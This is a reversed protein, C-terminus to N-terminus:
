NTRLLGNRQNDLHISAECMIKSTTHVLFLLHYEDTVALPSRARVLAHLVTARELDLWRQLATERERPGGLTVDAPGWLSYELVSKVQSLTEAKEKMLLEKVLPLKNTLHLEQLALLACQCLSAMKEECEESSDVNLGQLLYLRYCANKDERCLVVNSLNKPAEEIGRAQLNKMANVFQLLVFCCDKTTGEDKTDKTMVSFSHITNVQLRPLVSITAEVNKRGNCERKKALEQPVSDMFEVIPALYFEKRSVHTTPDFTICITLNQDNWIASYFIRRGVLVSSASDLTFDSLRLNANKLGRLGLSIPSVLNLQDLFQALADHNAVVVAGYNDELSRHVISRGRRQRLRNLRSEEDKGKWDQDEEPGEDGTYFSYPAYVESETESSCYPLSTSRTFTPQHYKFEVNSELISSDSKRKGNAHNGNGHRLELSSDCEPSSSLCEYVQSESSSPSNSTPSNSDLPEYDQNENQKHVTRKKLPPQSITQDRMSATRQPKSPALASRIEGLNAYISDSTSSPNSAPQWSKPPLKEGRPPPKTDTRPPPPRAPKNAPDLRSWDELSQNRPPPPPKGPRTTVQQVGSTMQSNFALSGDNRSDPVDESVRSHGENGLVQVAAGDLELPHIIELRPKPQPTSPIENMRSSTSGCTMDVDKRSGMRLFKKLSFRSRSKKKEETREPNALSDQSLSINRRPAPEPAKVSPDPAECVAKRFKPSCSSARERKEKERVVPSDSKMVTTPNRAFLSAQADDAPSAPPKPAMRRKNPSRIMEAPLDSNELDDEDIEVDEEPQQTKFISISPPKPRPPSGLGFTRTGNETPKPSEETKSPSEVQANQCSQVQPPKYTINQSQENNKSESMTSYSYNCNRTASLDKVENSNAQSSVQSVQNQLAPNQIPVSFSSLPSNKAPILATINNSFTSYTITSTSSTSNKPSFTSPKQPVLPKIKSEGHLFSARPEAITLMCKPEVERICGNTKVETPPPSKPLAPPESVDEDAKGDPEGASERSEVFNFKKGVDGEIRREVLLSSEKTKEEPAPVTIKNVDKGKVLISRDEVAEKKFPTLTLEIGSNYTGNTRNETNMIDTRKTIKTVAYEGKNNYSNQVCIRPKENEPKKIAPTRAISIRKESKSDTKKEISEHSEVGVNEENQIVSVLNASTILPMDVIKELSPSENQRKECIQIQDESIKKISKLSVETKEDKAIIDITKSKTNENNVKKDSPRKATPLSDDGGFPKVSVLLTKKKGDADKQVKGLMLSAFTKAAKADPTASGTLNATVTNFNTNARTLNGLAREEESDPVDDEPNSSDNVDMEQSDDDETDSLDDGGYGIVEFLSEPFEVNKKKLRVQSHEKIRLIGQVKHNITVIRVPAKVSPRPSESAVVHEERLKFCNSCLEKKWANQVFHNCQASM